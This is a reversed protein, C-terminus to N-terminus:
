RSGHAANEDDAGKEGLVRQVDIMAQKLIDAATGQFRHTKAMREAYGRAPFNQEDLGAPTPIAWAAHTRWWGQRARKVLEDM